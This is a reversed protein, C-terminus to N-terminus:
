GRSKLESDILDNCETDLNGFTLLNILEETSMYMYVGKAINLDTNNM